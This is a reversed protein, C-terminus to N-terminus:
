GTTRFTPTGKRDRAAWPDVPLCEAEFPGSSESARSARLTLFSRRGLLKQIIEEIKFRKRPM